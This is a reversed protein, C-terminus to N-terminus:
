ESEYAAQKMTTALITYVEIWAEKVENTWANGLGKELTDLLAMAVTDYHEPKVGYNVHRKGLYQVTEVLSELNNLGNVATSLMTMLKRGQEKLDSKFLQKLTPDLEFLRAYFIAAADDSIPAVMAFSDQVLKIQLENM